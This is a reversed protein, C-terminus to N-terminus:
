RALGRESSRLSELFPMLEPQTQALATIEEIVDDKRKGQRFTIRYANKINRIQEASFDRRKLGESNIGRAVAPQGSVMTYAPVDRNVGCYMGLFAHAGIKCFQHIGSFGGCIVWDGVQVHGALTTNNAMITKDGVICDHAIHVYAMIWNDDGIRTEGRDQVTGRSLTCFERITNREGIVLKTPENAYKKDQPDDGLSAFQYIHNDKGIITPGNIVVHSDVRTGGAITVDDGIVTYPGIEVDDAISAKDSIIATPHIM